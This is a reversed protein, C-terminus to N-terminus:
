YVYILDDFSSFYKKIKWIYNYDSEPIKSVNEFVKNEEPLGIIGFISALYDGRNHMLMRASRIKEPAIVKELHRYAPTKNGLGIDFKACHNAGYFMLHRQGRELHESVNQAIFGERSKTKGEFTVINKQAKTLEVGIFKLNPNTELAARIVSGIDAGLFAVEEQEERSAKVLEDLQKQRAEMFMVDMKYKNFFNKSLYSRYKDDHREGLCLLNLDKSNLNEVWEGINKQRSTLAKNMHEPNSEYFLPDLDTSAGYVPSLFSSSFFVIGWLLNGM